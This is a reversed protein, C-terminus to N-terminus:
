DLARTKAWRGASRRPGLHLPWKKDERGLNKRCSQGERRPGAHTSNRLIQGLGERDLEAGEQCAEGPGRQASFEQLETHERSLCHRVHGREGRDGFMAWVGEGSLM